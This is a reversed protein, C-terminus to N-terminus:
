KHAEIDRLVGQMNRAAKQMFAELVEPKMAMIGNSDPTSMILLKDGESLGLQERAEAPIVFQGKTGITASGWFKFDRM